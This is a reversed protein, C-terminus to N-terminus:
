SNEFNANVDRLDDPAGIHGGGGGWVCVYVGKMPPPPPFPDLFQRGLYEVRIEAAKNEFAVLCLFTKFHKKDFPFLKYAEQPGNWAQLCPLFYLM